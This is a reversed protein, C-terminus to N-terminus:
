SVGSFKKTSGSPIGVRVYVDGSRVTSGFTVRKTTASSQAVDLAADGNTSPSGVGPYAANADIWGTAGDVILYLALGSVLTSGGFNQAGAFSFTVSSASAITALKFTAWRMNAYGDPTLGTYDPGASPLNASYNVAPPYQYAGGLLQLEKNASLLTASNYTDGFQSAGAGVTPYQGTGSKRRLSENSASDIRIGGTLTAAGTAGKSNYGTASVQADESYQGAVITLPISAAISANPAPPTGPLAADVVNAHLSAARAIRNPNYHSKVANDVTFGVTLTGGTTLAPVGSVTQSTGSGVVTRGSAAISPAVPDDVSFNLVAQGTTTHILKAIHAGVGLASVLNLRAALAFWFGEKGAVGAYFDTDSTIELPGSTGTDDAVTLDIAGLEVGDVEGSLTGSAGDGFATAATILPTTDDIVTARATGTTSELAAYSGAIQLTTASLNPPRAPALKELIIEIKDFADPLEDDIDIGSVSGATGTTGGGTGGFIGDTPAELKGSGGGAVLNLFDELLPWSGISAWGDGDQNTVPIRGALGGMGPPLTPDFDDLDDADNIKVTRNAKYALRQIAGIVYDFAAEIRKLTFDYKNKFEWPQIPEDNASLIILRHNLPLNAALTVEGGGHEADYIVEDLFTTDTGRVRWTENGLNDLKIILLHSPQYIKFDFSYTALMGNGIYGEDVDFSAISM